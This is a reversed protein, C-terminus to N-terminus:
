PGAAREDAYTRRKPNIRNRVQPQRGDRKDQRGLALRTAIKERSGADRELRDGGIEVLPEDLPRGERGPMARIRDGRQQSALFGDLDARLIGVTQHQPCILSKRDFVSEHRLRQIALLGLSLEERQGALRVRQM